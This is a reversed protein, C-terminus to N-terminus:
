LCKSKDVLENLDVLLAAVNEKQWICVSLWSLVFVHVFCFFSARMYENLSNAKFHIYFMISILSTSYIGFIACRTAESLIKLRSTNFNIYRSLVKLIAHDPVRDWQFIGILRFNNKLREGINM